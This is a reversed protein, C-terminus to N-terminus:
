LAAEEAQTELGTWLKWATRLMRLTDPGLRRRCLLFPEVWESSWEVETSELSELGSPQDEAAAAM